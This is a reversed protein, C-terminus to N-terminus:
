VTTLSSGRYASYAGTTTNTQKKNKDSCLEEHAPLTLYFVIGKSNFKNM